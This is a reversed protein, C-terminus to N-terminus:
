TPTHYPYLLEPLARGKPFKQLEVEWQFQPRIESGDPELLSRAAGEPGM